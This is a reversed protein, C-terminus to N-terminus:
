WMPTHRVRLDTTTIWTRAGTDRVGTKTLCHGHPKPVGSESERNVLYKPLASESAGAESRVVPGQESGRVAELIRDLENCGSGRSLLVARVSVAGTRPDLPKEHGSSRTLAEAASATPSTGGVALFATILELPHRTAGRGADM